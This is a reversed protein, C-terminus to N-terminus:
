RPANSQTWPPPPIELSTGQGQPAEPRAKHMGHSTPAPRCCIGAASPRGHRSEQFESM